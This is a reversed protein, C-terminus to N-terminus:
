NLLVPVIEIVTGCLECSIKKLGTGRATLIESNCNPCKVASYGQPNIYEPAKCDSECGGCGACNGSM